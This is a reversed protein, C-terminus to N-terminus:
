STGASRVSGAAVSRATSPLSTAWRVTPRGISEASHSRCNGEIIRLTMSEQAFYPVLSTNKSLVYMYGPVVVGCVSVIPKSGLPRLPRTRACIAVVSSSAIASFDTSATM